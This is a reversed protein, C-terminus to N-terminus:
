HGKSGNGGLVEATNAYSYEGALDRCGLLFAINKNKDLTCFVLLLPLIEYHLRDSHRLRHHREGLDAKWFSLCRGLGDCGIVGCLCSFM